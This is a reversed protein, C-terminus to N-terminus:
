LHDLGMKESFKRIKEYDKLFKVGKKTLSIVDSDQIM